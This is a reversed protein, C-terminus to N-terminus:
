PAARARKGKDGLKDLIQRLEALLIKREEPENTVKLRKVITEVEARLVALEDANM